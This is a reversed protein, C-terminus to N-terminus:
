RHLLRELGLLARYGIPIIIIQKIKSIANLTKIAIKKRRWQSSVNLIGPNNSSVNEVLNLMNGIGIHTYPDGWPLPCQGPGGSLSAEGSFPQFDLSPM